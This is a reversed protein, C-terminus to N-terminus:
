PAHNEQDDVSNYLHYRNRGSQKAIYMAQDAYGLLVDPDNDDNPFISVGISATLSFSQDRIYIPLGIVEHLRKLTAICEEKRSLNPLLVVFEDGGLRAVTDGERLTNGMRQAIEVLVRDGAQHGLTDNVPKFGDLDLYCIGLMKQERQTQAIAQKMRDALLLRNPIGTLADYHAIRKLEKKHQKILLQNHVRMLTIAPSIPKSIYDVAGLHLGYTESEQDFAATVFIVPIDRTLPDEQLRQCVEYGDMVPMRVDLLVLDPHPDCQAIDLARQGNGAVKVQYDQNLLLALVELNVRTDDVILITPRTDQGATEIKGNPLDMLTNLVSAAKPYDTDLIYQTLTNCEAQNDDPFLMKLQAILEDGIFRDGALLADLEDMLQRQTPVDGSAPAVSLAELYGVAPNSETDKSQLALVAPVRQQDAPKVWRALMRFFLDWDIPKSIHDNMGSALCRKRDETMANGTMAIIPLDTFRPDARIIRSAEFGDMVPMQCDMLVMSYDNKDIMTIAEAGNAALDVQIGEHGLIEPMMERIALDDEVFLLYVNNLEPYKDPKVTQPPSQDFDSVAQVGLTVAFYFTSGFGLRSEISITGGMAEVLEKSISLGLGTGGYKRTTSDDAQNFASFLHSQQEDNLGIGTDIVNFRLCVENADSAQLQVQLTVSGKETFKIGNSLLNLLVQGLRLPDGILVAPVDPDVEFSLALQKGNLLPSTVDDLYQMITELRFETYELKLKGAELKSFDLIDNLIGLLWKASTNIKNLYNHQTATLDTQSILYTMGMIANMPTRIEHSMNALFASKIQVAAMAQQTMGQLEETRKAVQDELKAQIRQLQRVRWLYAALLLSLFMGVVITRFWMTQWFSPTITIPLSIGTENWVGNNNSAKVRFLYKGPDLNTYMAIRHSSDTEVWDQDFGELKYAYLNRNPDAFHLASFRLSFMLKRWPLTLTKPAVVSGELKVGELKVNEILSRNLVSIDTIAVTPPSQNNRIREPHVVVMGNLNNFYLMGDSDVLSAGFVWNTSFGEALYYTSFQATRPDFKALEANTSFWINGTKDIKITRIYDSHLVDRNNYNHFSLSGDATVIAQSIGRTSAIWVSGDPAEQLDMVFDSALSAPNTPDSHYYQFKGTSPNLIGLGGGAVDSGGAWINGVHDVMLTSVSNNALSHPDLSDHQFKRLGGSKPDYEILGGGTGLWLTGGLGPVIKNVFNSAIDGLSVAQFREQRPDFRILGNRTGIWLPGKPQQYLSYIIDNPLGDNQKHAATLNKIIRRNIPDILMLTSRGGLWLHGAETSAIATVTNDTSDEKGQLTRPILQEFGGLSLDVESIGNKTSILFSGSRDLLLSLVHNGALSNPDEVQHQYRDFQQLVEDWRLLGGVTAVWVNGSSDEIFDHVRFDQPIGPMPLQKNQAWNQGPHKLFIGAESGIWLRKRSDVFLARINKALSSNNSSNIQYHQFQSSGAPLYDIGGPWTALWLGGQQDLALTDVNDNALSDPQTSDHQYIRFKGTDPDFYQLGQRTALWLGSKGDSVIKRIQRNQHPDGQDALPLYTKFTNTESEFLALGNRTGIWLRHQQDEILSTVSDHPPFSNPTNPQHQFHRYQYGDYRYLGSQTGMWIFGQHDQIMAMPSSLADINLKTFHLPPAACTVPISITLWILLVSLLIM